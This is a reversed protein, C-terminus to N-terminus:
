LPHHDYTFHLCDEQIVFNLPILSCQDLVLGDNISQM